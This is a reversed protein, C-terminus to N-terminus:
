DADLEDRGDGDADPPSLGILRVIVMGAVCAGALLFNQTIMGYGTPVLLAALLAKCITRVRHGTMRAIM